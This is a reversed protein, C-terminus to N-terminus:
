LEGANQEGTEGRRTEVRFEPVPLLNLDEPLDRDVLLAALILHNNPHNLGLPLPSKLSPKLFELTPKRRLPEEIL